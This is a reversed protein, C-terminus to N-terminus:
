LLFISKLFLKINSHRSCLSWRKWKKRCMVDGARTPLKTPEMRHTQATLASFSKPTPGTDGPIHSPLNHVCLRERSRLLLSLPSLCCQLLREGLWLLTLIGLSWSYCLSYSDGLSSGDGLTGGAVQRHLLFFLSHTPVPPLLRPLFGCFTVWILFWATCFNGYSTESYACIPGMLSVTKQLRRSLQGLPHSLALCSPVFWSPTM